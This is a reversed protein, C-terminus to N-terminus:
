IFNKSPDPCTTKCTKCRKPLWSEKHNETIGDPCIPVQATLITDAPAQMYKNCWIYAQTNWTNVLHGPKDKDATADRQPCNAHQCPCRKDRVTVTCMNDNRNSNPDEPPNDKTSLYWELNLDSSIPLALM